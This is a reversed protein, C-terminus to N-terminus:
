QATSRSSADASDQDVSASATNPAALIKKHYPGTWYPVRPSPLGFLPDQTSGDPGQRVGLENVAQDLSLIFARRDTLPISAMEEYPAVGGGGGLEQISPLIDAAMDPTLVDEDRITVWFDGEPTLNVIPRWSLADDCARHTPVAGLRRM